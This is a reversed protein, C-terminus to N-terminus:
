RQRLRSRRGILESVPKQYYYSTGMDGTVLNKMWEGYREPLPRNLGMEERLLEVKEETAETGLITRAPDGPIIEFALFSLMSVILLTIILGTIKKLIYKM